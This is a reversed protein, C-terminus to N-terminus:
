FHRRKKVTANRLCQFRLQKGPYNFVYTSCQVKEKKKKKKEDRVNEKDHNLNGIKMAKREIQQSAM